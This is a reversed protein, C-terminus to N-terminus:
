GSWLESISPSLGGRIKRVEKSIEELDRQNICATDIWLTRADKELRLYRLASALNQGAELTIPQSQPRMSTSIYTRIKAKLRLALAPVEELNKEKGSSRLYYFYSQKSDGLCSLAEYTSFLSKEKSSPHHTISLQVQDSFKGALLTL